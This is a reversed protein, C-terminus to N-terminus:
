ILRPAKWKWITKFSIACTFAIGNQLYLIEFRKIYGLAGSKRLNQSCSNQIVIKIKHNNQRFYLQANHTYTMQWIM